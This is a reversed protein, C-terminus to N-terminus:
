KKEEKPKANKIKEVQHKRAWERAFKRMDGEGDYNVRSEKRQLHENLSMRGGEELRKDVYDNVQKLIKNPTLKGFQAQRKMQQFCVFMDEMTMNGYATMIEAAVDRAREDDLAKEFYASTEQVVVALVKEVKEEDYHRKLAFLTPFGGRIVDPMTLRGMRKVLERNSSSDLILQMIGQQKKQLM